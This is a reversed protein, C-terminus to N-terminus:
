RCTPLSSLGHNDSSPPHRYYTISLHSSSLDHSVRRGRQVAMKQAIRTYKLTHPTLM